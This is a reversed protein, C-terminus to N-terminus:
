LFNIIINHNKKVNDSIKRANECIIFLLKGLLAVASFYLMIMTDMLRYM